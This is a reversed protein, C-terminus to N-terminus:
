RATTNHRTRGQPQTQIRIYAAAAKGEDSYTQLQRSLRSVYADNLEGSALEENMDIPQQSAVVTLMEMGFPQSVKFQFVNDNGGLTFRQGARIENNILPRPLLHVIKGDAQYYDIWLFAPTEAMAYLILNDGEVYAEGPAKDSWVKLGFAGGKPFHQDILNAVQEIASDRPPKPTEVITKSPSPQPTEVVAKEPRSSKPTPRPLPPHMVTDSSPHDAPLAAPAEVPGPLVEQKPTHSPLVETKQTFDSFLLVGQELVQQTQQAVIQLHRSFPHWFTMGVVLATLLVVVAGLWVFRPSRRSRLDQFDELVRKVISAPIPRKRQWCGAVLVDICLMNLNRPIGKAAKVIKRMAANSFVKPTGVSSAMSLKYQIYAISEKRNFTDLKAVLQIRKKLQRLKPDRLHKDLTPDGSLILQALSQGYPYTDILKTINKLVEHPLLHAHDIIIVVDLEKAREEIFIDHLDNLADTSSQYKAEYGIERYVAKVIDNFYTNHFQVEILITKYKFDSNKALASRLLAVQDLGAEGLLLILSQQENLGKVVRELVLQHRRSLNTLDSDPVSMFPIYKLKYFDRYM